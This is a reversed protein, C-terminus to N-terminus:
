NFLNELEWYASTTKLQTIAIIEANQTGDSESYRQEMQLHFFHKIKYGFSNKLFHNRLLIIYVKDFNKM